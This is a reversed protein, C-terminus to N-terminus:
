LNLLGPPPTIKIWGEKIKVIPVIENVFPILVTKGTELQIELLDNGGQRLNKVKGIPKKQNNIRVELDILDLFHFENNNLKPRNNSPVLVKYGVLSQASTRNSIGEFTIVFISKGPIKRGQILSIKKPKEIAKQIWRPGPELFREPFDSSPNIRIEGKLGQPAVIQGIQLWLSKDNSM